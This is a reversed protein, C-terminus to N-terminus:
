SPLQFPCRPRFFCSSCQGFQPAKLGKLYHDVVSLILDYDLKMSLNVCEGSVENCLSNDVLDYVIFNSPSVYVLSARSAGIIFKYLFLQVVHEINVKSSTKIEVVHNDPCLLDIRGRIVVGREPVQFSVSVEPICGYKSLVSEVANHIAVGHILASDNGYLDYFSRKIPCTTLETVFVENNGRAVSEHNSFENRLIDYLKM